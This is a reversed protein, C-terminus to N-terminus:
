KPETGSPPRPTKMRSLFSLLFEELLEKVPSPPPPPPPPPSRSLGFSVIAFFASIALLLTSSIMLGSYSMQGRDIQLGLEIVALLFGSFLFLGALFLAAFSIAYRKGRRAMVQAGEVMAQSDLFNKRLSFLQLLLTIWKM